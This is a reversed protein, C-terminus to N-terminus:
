WSVASKHTVSSVISRSNGEDPDMYDIRVSVLESGADLTSSESLDAREIPVVEYLATVTQGELIIQNELNNANTKKTNDEGILRYGAVREPNFEVAM